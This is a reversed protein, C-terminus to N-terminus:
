LNNKLLFKNIVLNIKDTSNVFTSNTKYITYSQTFNVYRIGRESIMEVRHLKCLRDADM